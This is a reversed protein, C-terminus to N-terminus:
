YRNGSHYEIIVEKGTINCAIGKEKRSVVITLRILGSWDNWYCYRVIAEQDSIIDITPPIRSDNILSKCDVGVSLSAMWLSVNDVVMMGNNYCGHGRHKLYLRSAVVLMVAEWIAVPTFPLKLYEAVSPVTNSAHSPITNHIYQGEVFPTLDKEGPNYRSKTGIKRAYLKLVANIAEGANYGDLKFDDRMHIHPFAVMLPQLDDFTNFNIKRVVREFLHASAALNNKEKKM